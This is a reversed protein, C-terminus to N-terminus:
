KEYTVEISTIRVQGNTKGTSSDITFVVSPSNPEVIIKSEINQGNYVLVGGNSLNYTIKISTIKCGESSSITLVSNSTQYMRWQKNSENYTGTDGGGSAEAIINEDIVVSTYKTGDVWSNFAAYDAISLTATVTEKEIEGSEVTVLCENSVVEGVRVTITTTGEKVGTVVGDSVTAASPNSSTWVAGELSANAPNILVTLEVEDNESITISENISISTLKPPNVHVNCTAKVDGIEITITADGEAVATLVGNSNVTVAAPNSSTWEAGDLVAQSPTAVANLSLVDDVTLQITETIEADGNKLTIATVPIKVFEETTMTISMSSVYIKGAIADLKFYKCNRNGFDITNEISSPTAITGILIWNTGDESGYVSLVSTEEVTEFGMSVIRNPLENSTVIGDYKNSDYIRLQETLHCDEINISVGNGLEHTESAYQTGAEYDAFVFTKTYPCPNLTVRITVNEKPMTFSYTKNDVSCEVEGTQGEVVVSEVSYGDETNVTFSVKSNSLATVPADVSGNEFDEVEIFYEANADMIDVVIRGSYGPNITVKNNQVDEYVELVNGLEDLLKIEGLLKNAGLSITLTITDVSYLGTLSGTSSEYEITAGEPQVIELDKSNETFVKYLSVYNYNASLSKYFGFASSSSSGNYLIKRETNLGKIFYNGDSEELVWQMASAKDEVYSLGTSNASASLYKDGVYIYFANELSGEVFEINWLVKEEFSVNGLTEYSVCKETSVTVSTTGVADTALAYYKGDKALTVLAYQTNDSSLESANNVKSTHVPASIILTRTTDEQNVSYNSSLDFTLTYTYNGVKVATDYGSYEYDINDVNLEYSLAHNNGDYEVKTEGNWTIEIVIPNITLTRSVDNSNIKYNGASAGTLSITYTESEANIIADGDLSLLVEDNGVISSPDITASLIHEEGDYNVEEEGNWVIVVEKAKIEFNGDKKSPDNYNSDKSIFTARGYYKGVNVLPTLIEIKREADSYYKITYELTNPLNTLTMEKPNGDYETENPGVLKVQSMDYDIKNIKIKATASVDNYMDNGLITVKVTYDGANVPKDIPNDESDFYEFIAEGIFLAGSYDVEYSVLYDVSIDEVIITNDYKNITITYTDEKGDAAATITVQGDSVPTVVGNAVTAISNDSSTWTVEKHTANNPSVTAVLTVSEDVYITDINEEQTIEVGSVPVTIPKVTVECTAQFGGDNTTVTIIANGEALATVKGNVVIAVNENSSTWTVEKNTSDEPDFIPELTVEENIELEVEEKDLAVGIVSRIITVKATLEKDNYNRNGKVVVVVNYTGVETPKSIEKGALDYYKVTDENSLEIPSIVNIRNIYGNTHVKITVLGKVEEITAIDANQYSNVTVKSGPVVYFSIETGENVQIWDKTNNLAWKGNTADISLPGWKGENGQFADNCEIVNIYSTYDVVEKVSANTSAEYKTSIEEDLDVYGVEWDNGKEVVINNMALNRDTPNIEWEFNLTANIVNYNNSDYSIVAYATYTGGEVAENDVYQVTIQKPYGVYTVSHTQGDYEYPGTYEWYADKLDLTAKVIEWDYPEVAAPENYNTGDFRFSLVEAKYKGVNTGEFGRKGDVEVGNPLGALEVFQSAGNYVYEDKAVWHVKSMDYDAKAISWQIQGDFEEAWVMSNNNLTVTAFYTGAITASGNAVSYYETKAVGTLVKGNYVLGTVAEPVEVVLQKILFTFTLDETTGDAWEYNAKDKLVVLIDNSGADVKTLTGDIEYNDNEELQYTQEEGNYIFDTEDKVPKDVKAKKIEFTFTLDNVSGDEWEYNAKDKLIVLIDNSGANIKTLTGDIEYYKNTALVYTQEKTNYVYENTDKTPKAVQAKAITWEILGDEDNAWVYNSNLEIEITYTDANKGVNGDVIEMYKNNFGNLIVTQDLGNYTYTGKVTPEAVELPVIVLEISKTAEKYKSTESAKAVVEYTGVDTPKTIELGEKYYKVEIVQNSNIEPDFDYANGYKVELDEFNEIELSHKIVTIVYTAEVNGVVVKITASGESIAKVAGDNSVTAVAENNSSWSISDTTNAPTIIAELHLTEDIKITNVNDEAEIEVDEAPVPIPVVTVTCTAKFNGDVTSVTITTQGVEIANIVGNEDVTAISENASEWTVDQNSADSPLITPVLTTNEEKVLSISTPLKVGTVPQVVTVEITDQVDAATSSVTITANGAKHATLKGEADVSVVSKDSSTWKVDVETTNAPSITIDLEYTDQVALTIEEKELEISTPLIITKFECTAKFEGDVTTGTVTASGAGVATVLGDEVVVVDENSSSWIVEKNTANNPSITAELEFEDGVELTVSDENLTVNSVSVIVEITCTAKFNGEVTSVTIVVTGPALTSVVGDQVTAVEEDSSTWIVEKNTAEEPLVKAILEFDDGLEVEKENVNLEVGEVPTIVTIVCTATKNGEVTSVTIITEGAAIATVLGDKNVTAVSESSSTWVVEKNTADAPSVTAVLQVEDDINLTHANTNLSVKEVLRVVKVLCVDKFNGDETTVVITANGLKHGTIVGDEVSVISEDSSMWTVAPNTANEPTITATLRDSKGIELELENRDLKVNAVDQTVNITCTAVKSGDLTIVTILASGPAIAEVTGDKVTVVDKNSSAWLVAKNSADVPSVTAELEFKDGVLLDLETVDLEVGTVPKTVLIICSATKLGDVSAATIIATGPAVATVLGQEVTAVSNDSSAWVVIKNTADNPSVTAELEFTDGVNLTQNYESLTIEDVLRSVLVECAATKNGDVTTVKITTHGVKIAKVVGNKVTAVEENSSSWTVKTNTADAPIFSPTLILEDGVDINAILKDLIVGEMPVQKPIVKVTCIDKKKNMGKSATVTIKATGVGVATVLGDKTVTAVEEDSSSWLVSVDDSLEKINVTAELKETQGVELILTEKTLSVGNLADESACSALSFGLFIAILFKFLKKM